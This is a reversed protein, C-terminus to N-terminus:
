GEPPRIINIIDFRVKPSPREFVGPTFNDAANSEDEIEGGTDGGEGNEKIIIAKGAFDVEQFKTKKKAM